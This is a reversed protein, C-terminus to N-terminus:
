QCQHDDYVNSFMYGGEAVVERGVAAATTDDDDNTGFGGYDLRTINIVDHGECSWFMLRSYHDIAIDYPRMIFPSLNPGGELVEGGRM